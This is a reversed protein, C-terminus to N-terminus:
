CQDCRVRFELFAPRSYKLLPPITLNSPTVLELGEAIVAPVLEHPAPRPATIAMTCFHSLAVMTLIQSVRSITM